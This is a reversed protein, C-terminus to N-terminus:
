SSQLYFMAYQKKLLTFINCEAQCFKRCIFWLHWPQERFDPIVIKCNANLMFIFSASVIQIHNNRFSGGCCWCCNSWGLKTNSEKHSCACCSFRGHQFYIQMCWYKTLSQHIVHYSPSFIHLAYSVRNKHWYAPSGIDVYWYVMCLAHKSDSISQSLHYYMSELLKFVCKFWKCLRSSILPVLGM